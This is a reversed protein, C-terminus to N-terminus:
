RRRAELFAKAESISEVRCVAVGHKKAKAHWRVQNPNLGKGKSKCEIGFLFPRPEWRAGGEHVTLVNGSVLGLIDPTGAEGLRMFHDGTKLGGSNARWAWIGMRKCLKLVEPVLGGDAKARSM